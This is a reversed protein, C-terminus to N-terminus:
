TQPGAEFERILPVFDADANGFLAFTVDNFDLGRTTRIRDFIALYNSLIRKEWQLGLDAAAKKINEARGEIELFCGFPMCDICLLTGNDLTWTQRYKEYIQEAHFGLTQLIAATTDFDSVAVELETFVKFEKSTSAEPPPGKYTLETSDGAKRLRLLAKRNLLAFQRDDFCVNYEHHRGSTEAGTATIRSRIKEPDALYFKVEIELSTM